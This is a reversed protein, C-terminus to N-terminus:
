TLWGRVRASRALYILWGAHVAVTAVVYLPTDGPIRNNPAISTAYVFLQATGSLVIAARTLGLAGPRSDWISRAAAVGIATVMVRGVILAGLPWGRVPLAM